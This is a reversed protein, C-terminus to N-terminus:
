GFIQSLLEKLVDNQSLPTAGVGKSKLDAERIKEIIFSVKKMPYNKAATIYDKVFYPNVKLKSAANRESKDTLGHFQMVKIFFNYLMAVTVVNPHDKPNQMFYNTIKRAKVIEMNGIAKNLEFVNFDKSIGINEEIHDPTIHTGVPLIIQLKSLENAINSLNAGLFEVLLYAAKPEIRYGKENMQRTIWDGVQNEYLSKFEVMEAKAKNLSKALAKRKDLKKYKYCFVLVTSETPNLVYDALKEITRSLDQAEKVIVVQKEAMMPYRKAAGVIDEITTDRGYVITQNFDREHAQLVNEQIYNAIQDIFYAEEGMLFYVSNYKQQKLDSLIRNADSM